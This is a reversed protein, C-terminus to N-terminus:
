SMRIGSLFRPWEKTASKQKKLKRTFSSLQVFMHVLGVYDVIEVYMKFERRSGELVGLKDVKYTNMASWPMWRVRKRRKIMYRNIAVELQYRAVPQALVEELDSRRLLREGSLLIDSRYWRVFWPSRIRRLILMDVKATHQFAHIAKELEAGNLEQLDADMLLVLEHEVFQLGYQIAAAKGRNQSLRIVQVTPWQRSVMTATNDSSGDDVCIVQQIGEIKTVVDLVTAIRDRENYCPILCTVGM